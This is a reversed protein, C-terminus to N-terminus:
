LSIIRRRYLYGALIASSFLFAAFGAKQKFSYAAREKQIRPVYHYYYKDLFQSMTIEPKELKKNIVNHIFHIWTVLSKRDDLYPIIPYKLLLEDYEKAIAGVPIFLNFTRFFEYYRKKTTANPYKPYTLAITNLFFWYHPGWVDPNYTPEPMRNYGPIISTGTAAGAGNADYMNHMQMMYIKYPDIM